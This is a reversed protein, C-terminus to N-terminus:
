SAKYILYWEELKSLISNGVNSFTGGFITKFNELDLSFQECVDPHNNCYNTKQTNYFNKIKSKATRYENGLSDILGPFKSEIFDLVVSAGATFKLKASESLESFTHGKITGGYFLFDVLTTFYTSAGAETIQNANLKSTASDVYSLVDTDTNTDNSFAEVINNVNPKPAEVKPTPVPTSVPKPTSPVPTSVVKPVSPTVAKPVPTSEVVPTKVEEKINEKEKNLDKEYDTIDLENGSYQYTVKKNNGFKNYSLFLAGFIFAGIIIGAFLYTLSKYKSLEKEM